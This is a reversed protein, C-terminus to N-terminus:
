HNKFLNVGRRWGPSVIKGKLGSYAVKGCEPWRFQSLNLTVTSSYLQREYIPVGKRYNIELCNFKCSTIRWNNCQNLKWHSTTFKEAKDYDHTTVMHRTYFRLM